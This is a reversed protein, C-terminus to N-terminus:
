VAQAQGIPLIERLGSCVSALLPSVGTSAGTVQRVLRRAAPSQLGCV